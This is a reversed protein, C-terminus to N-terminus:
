SLKRRKIQLIKLLFRAIMSHFNFVISGEKWIKRYNGFLQPITNAIVFNKTNLIDDVHTFQSIEEVFQRDPEQFLAEILPIIQKHKLNEFALLYNAKLVPKFEEITEVLLAENNKIITEEYNPLSEHPATLLLEYLNSYGAIKKNSRSDFLISRFHPPLDCHCGLLYIIKQDILGLNNLMHSLKEPHNGTFGIDFLVLDGEPLNQREVYRVFKKYDEENELILSKRSTQFYRVDLGRLHAVIYPWFGDRALFITGHAGFDEILRNVVFYSLMMRLQMVNTHMLDFHARVKRIACLIEVSNSELLRKELMTPALRPTEIAEIGLARANRVDSVVNDGYHRIVRHRSLVLAYLSKTAKSARLDCSVYLETYSLDIKQLIQKIQNKSYYIDTVIICNFGDALYNSFNRVNKRIPIISKLDEQFEIEASYIDPMFSYIEDLNPETIVKRAQTEANIRAKLFNKDQYVNAGLFKFLSLHDGYSRTVLTDFLDFSIVM